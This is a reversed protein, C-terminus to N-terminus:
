KWIGSNFLLIGGTSIYYYNSKKAGTLLFTLGVVFLILKISERTINLANITGSM